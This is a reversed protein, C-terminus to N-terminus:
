APAGTSARVRLQTPVVIEAEAVEGGVKRLLLEVGIEGMRHLPVEITTLQPTCCEAMETGDFGIVSIQGPVDVGAERLADTVGWAADDNQTLLATCGLEQWDENLWQRMGERGANMFHLRWWIGPMQRLWREDPTIGAESLADRYGNLRHAYFAKNSESNGLYAIRRHGMNLLHETAARTGAYDDSRVVTWDKVIRSRQSTTGTIDSPTFLSVVPLGAPMHKAPLKTNMGNVLLGDVKDWGFSSDDKLLVIEAGHKRAAAEVGEIVRTWFASFDTQTFGVGCFGILGTRPKTRPDAVYVGSRNSRVVLGEEELLAHAKVTTSVNVGYRQSMERVSPLRGGPQLIGKEIQRRLQDAVQVYQFVRPTSSTSPMKTIQTSVTESEM